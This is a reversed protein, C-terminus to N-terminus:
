TGERQQGEGQCGASERRAQHPGGSHALSHTLLPTLVHTFQSSHTSTSNLSCTFSHILSHTVLHVLTHTLSCSPTLSYHTSTSHTLTHTHSHALPYAPSHTSALSQLNLSHTSTSHLNLPTLSHTLPVERRMFGAENAIYRTRTVIEETSMGALEALLPDEEVGEEGQDGGWIDAELESAMHTHSLTFSHTLPTPLCITFCSPSSLLSPNNPV